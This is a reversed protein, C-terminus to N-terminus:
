KRRMLGLIRTSGSQFPMHIHACVNPYGAIVDLVEDPFDKPHPSTFRVRMEPDVEAVQWRVTPHTPSCLWVFPLWDALVGQRRLALPVTVTTWESPGAARCLSGRRAKSQRDLPPSPGAPSADSPHCPESPSVHVAGLGQWPLANPALPCACITGFGQSNHTVVDSDKPHQETEKERSLDRYSNVNQGLLTVEKVGQESLSRVEGLISEVARSRERGRTFPVICFACMNDCGRQISVFASPKEPHLRVPTIGAYTEDVSLMVNIQSNGEDAVSLMRPLDRYSDPGAVLDVLRDSELLQTKLRELPVM